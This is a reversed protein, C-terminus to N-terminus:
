EQGDSESSPTRAAENDVEIIRMLQARNAQANYTRLVYSLLSGLIWCVVLAILFREAATIGAVEGALLNPIMPACCLVAAGLVLEPHKVSM